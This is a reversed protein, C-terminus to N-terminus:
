RTDKMSSKEEKVFRYFTNRKLNLRRMAEAGTITRNQYIPYVEGWQSPKAIEKRGKFKGKARAIAIGERQKDLLNNREFENIAGIVTLFMKGAATSTDLNEKMSILKVGRSELESTIDLLDKTNRALRSFDKVYITDGERVYDLMQKLLPRETDKASIKEIYVKFLDLDKLAEIQRDEHQEATSVRVYGVKTKDSINENTVIRSQTENRM